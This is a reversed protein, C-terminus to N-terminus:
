SGAAFTLFQQSYHSPIVNVDTNDFSYRITADWARIQLYYCCDTFSAGLLAAMDINRLHVLSGDPTTGTANTNKIGLTGDNLDFYNHPGTSASAPPNGGALYLDFNAYHPDDFQGWIQIESVNAPTEGCPPIVTVGDMLRVELKIPATSGPADSPRTNDLQIHHDANEQHPGGADDWELWVVYHGDPNPATASNWVALRRESKVCVYSFGGLTGLM